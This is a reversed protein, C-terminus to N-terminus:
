WHPRTTFPRRTWRQSEASSAVRNVAAVYVFFFHVTREIRLLLREDSFLHHSIFVFYLLAWIFCILAFLANEAQLRGRALVVFILIISFFLSILPPLIYVPVAGSFLEM